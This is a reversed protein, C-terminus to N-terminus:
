PKPLPMLSQEIMKLTADSSYFDALQMRILEDLIHHENLVAILQPLFRNAETTLHQQTIGIEELLEAVPYRGYIDFFIDVGTLIIQQMYDTQRLHRWSDYMLVFFEEIDIGAIGSSLENLPMLKIHHWVQLAIDKLEATDLNLALSTQSQIFQAIHQEAMSLLKTEQHRLTKNLKAVLKTQNIWSEGLQSSAQTRWEPLQKKIISSTVQAIIDHVAPSQEIAQTIHLRVQDLELIKDIWQEIHQDSMLMSLTPALQNAENFLQQSMAGILEILGGGLNLDFAFTQIVAKINSVSVAQEILVDQGRELCFDILSNVHINAEPSSLHLKIFQVQAQLLQQALQQAAQASATSM